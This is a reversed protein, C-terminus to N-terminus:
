NLGYVPIITSHQNKRDYFVLHGLSNCKYDEFFCCNEEDKGYTSCKNDYADVGTTTYYVEFGQIDSIRIALNGIGHKESGLEREINDKENLKIYHYTKFAPLLKEVYNEGLDADAYPHFWLYYMWTEYIMKRNKIF